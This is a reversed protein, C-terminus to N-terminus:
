IEWSLVVVEHCLGLSIQLLLQAELWLAHKKGKKLARKAGSKVDM